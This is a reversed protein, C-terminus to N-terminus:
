ILCLLSVCVFTTFSCILIVACVTGGNLKAKDRRSKLTELGM